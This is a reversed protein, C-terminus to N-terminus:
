EGTNSHKYCDCFRAKNLGWATNSRFYNTSDYCEDEPYVGSEWSEYDTETQGRPGCTCCEGDPEQAFLYAYQFKLRLCLASFFDSWCFIFYSIFFDIYSEGDLDIYDIDPLIQDDNDIEGSETEPDPVYNGYLDSIIGIELALKMPKHEIILDGGWEFVSFVEEILSKPDETGLDVLRKNLYNTIYYFYPTLVDRESWFDLQTIGLKNELYVMSQDFRAYYDDSRVM